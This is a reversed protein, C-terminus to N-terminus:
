PSNNNRKPSNNPSGDEFHKGFSFGKNISLPSRREVSREVSSFDKSSGHEISSGARNHM